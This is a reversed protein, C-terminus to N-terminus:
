AIWLVGKAGPLCQLDVATPVTLEIALTPTTRNAVPCEIRGSLHNWQCPSIKFFQIGLSAFRKRQDVRRPFDILSDESCNACAQWNFPDVSAHSRGVSDVREAVELKEM